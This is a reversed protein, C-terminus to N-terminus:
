LRFPVNVESTQPNPGNGAHRNHDRSIYPTSPKNIMSWATKIVYISKIYVGYKLIYEVNIMTTFQFVLNNVATYDGDSLFM